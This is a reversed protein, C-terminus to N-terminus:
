IKFLTKFIGRGLSAGVNGGLRKGFSGGVTKGLTNGLERGITGAATNGVSTINRATKKKESSEAKEKKEAEKAAIKEEIEKQKAALDDEERQAYLRQFFEYASDRDLTESYKDKLASNEILLNKEAESLSGMMSQPPLIFAKSVVAPSGDEEIFSLVAEGTGLALIADMTDFAPNSRYSQAAAKVAKQEAPTYARLAHQIKNGLQALIEDPIDRPNQTIFYVGIGKSRILKMVQEIKQMLAKPTNDFLLHAEDFFFVIKPKELDGAEPMVEFLESLLWLMFTSYILPDHILGTSDLINIYGRHMDDFQFWDHIDFAPEGFFIEGGRDELSVLSRIIASVSQKAINGYDKKYSASNESVFNLMAKLDKIDILLQGEDDAIKFIINLIDSQIQNLNLLRAFLLPGFETVTTRLPLGGKAFTDWFQVPFKEYRFGREKLGLKQVREEVGISDGGPKCTGALDGKVDALVVPVGAQSFSEALVKLTVTKGTGTAGTILGHRNAMKPLIYLKKEKDSAVWIKDESYM